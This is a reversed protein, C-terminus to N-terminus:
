PKTGLPVGGSQFASLDHDAENKFFQDNPLFQQYNGLDSSDRILVPRLFVVLEIKRVKDNRYSFLDGVYAMRSLGPVGQRDNNLSDQILGGLIAVQGSAVKLTSDFERVQLIPVLSKIQTNNAAALIAVAPDEIFSNINTITPRVNLAVQGDESIQPTVQMVLGIPVTHLESDYTAQTTVKGDTVVPPTVKITFYVQEEVVKMVATQNNLAMIKPSSLVRTRGFQELMKITFNFTGSLIGGTKTYSLISLPATGLNNALSKQQFNLQNDTEGIRSWDVGAQYQDSLLVEVITAEILVQRLAGSQVANLYEAVKAHEKQSARITVVGTEPNLIVLRSSDAPPSTKNIPQSEGSKIKETEANTKNAQAIDKAAKAAEAATKVVEKKDVSVNSKVAQASQDQVIAGLQAGGTKAEASIGLLEKLNLDIQKWLHHDALMDIQTNSSNGSGGGSGSSVSNALTVNSKVNRSLNFYNMRYTKLYPLDPTVTLVGNELEWRLDVQKSMRELIQPLTQNIANLTVNGSVGAHVDVNIRADRGLAFLIENVSVQHVVVSYTATKAAPQPKPLVPMASVPKPIESSVAKAELHRGTEMELGSQGACASLLSVLILIQWRM